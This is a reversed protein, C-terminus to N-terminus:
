PTSPDSSWLVTPLLPHDDVCAYGPLCPHSGDCAKGGLDADLACAGVLSTALAHLALLPLLRTRVVALTGAENV